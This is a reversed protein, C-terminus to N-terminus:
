DPLYATRTLDFSDVFIRSISPNKSIGHGEGRPLTPVFDSM